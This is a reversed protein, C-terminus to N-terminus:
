NDAWDAPLTGTYTVNTVRSPTGLDITKSYLMKRPISHIALRNSISLPTSDNSRGGNVYLWGNYAAYGPNYSSQSASSSVYSSSGIWGDINGDELISAYSVHPRLGGTPGRGGAAYMYGNYAFTVQYARLGELKGAVSWTGLTGNSNIAAKYIANQY